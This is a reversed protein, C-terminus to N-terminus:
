PIHGIPKTLWLSKKLKIILLSHTQRDTLDILVMDVLELEVKDGIAVSQNGEVKRLLNLLIISTDYLLM